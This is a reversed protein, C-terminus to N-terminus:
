GKVAGITIGQTFSKQFILFIIIMPISALAAGTMMLGYDTTFELQMTAIGLPLTQMTKSRILILQMFYDNWSSIFTFIALAAVGPKVIPLVISKFIRLESCGDIKAAEILESPITESFQKMLFIGFPWGVAPLILSKYTDIWDLKTLITFLPVMIVQKPLAMAGILLWFILKRGPFRKKALVYGALSATLCVLFTTSIAIFFSNFTWRVLPQKALNILNAMTPTKPWWQPPISLAAAQDKFAGTIIWYFPFIFVVTFICLIILSIVHKVTWQSRWDYLEEKEKKKISFM